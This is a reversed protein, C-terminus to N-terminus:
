VHREENRIDLLEKMVHFLSVAAGEVGFADHITRYLRYLREYVEVHAPIPEFVREMTGTMAEMASDFDGYGGGEAGAVVAAAIASGLAPTQTSRSVKMPRNLVDAYIQMVLTNKISIGGCNVVEDIARGYSEIQEIIRRAGFATAEVLARYIEGPSSHLTLGLITGTLRQDVLVTRNGNHWDLALLGSEGPRLTEAAATLAEHSGVERGGPSIVNVFWNFIDGVASQGAEIGLYGPIVSGPVIGSIGPIDPISGDDAAVMIDCTSTGVIKVLRGAKIGSGVAGLHADFAGVAVPIGEVLGFSAAWEGDLTGVAHEVGWAEDPLTRRVAALAPELSTLFEEDPYGGWSPHFMGKHGAACVRRRVASVDSIGCLTAPIWDAIEMWTDAAEVVTPDDRFARWIKAWFWESSYVGGTKALYRPRETRASATIAEAEATSSHDKWLWAMATMNDAFADTTALPTLDRTIPLPTSGTTDVGLAIVEEAKIGIEAARRVVTRITKRAADLYDAPHQRAVNPDRRDLLIGEEGHAYTAIETALEAGDSLRVVVARASNTGYDLGITYAM